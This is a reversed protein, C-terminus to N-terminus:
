FYEIYQGDKNPQIFQQVFGTEWLKGPIGIIILALLKHLSGIVPIITLNRHEDVLSWYNHLYVTGVSYLLYGGTGFM